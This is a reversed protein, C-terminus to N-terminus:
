ERAEGGQQNEEAESTGESFVDEDGCLAGYILALLFASIVHGFGSLIALNVGAFPTREMTEPSFANVLVFTGYLALYVLFLVMGLRANRSNM